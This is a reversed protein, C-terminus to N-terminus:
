ATAMTLTDRRIEAVTDKAMYAELCKWQEDETLQQVVNELPCLVEREEADMGDLIPAIPAPVRGVRLSYSPYKAGPTQKKEIGVKLGGNPDIANGVVKGHEDVEKAAKWIQYGLGPIGGRSGDYGSAYLLRSVTKGNEEVLVWCLTHPDTLLRAGTRNEKSFLAEPRHQKMWAYAHDFVSQKRRELSKPHVFRGGTYEQVHLGLMWSHASTALAPVIRLWTTGMPFRLKRNQYEPKLIQDAFGGNGLKPWSPMISDTNDNETNFEIPNM